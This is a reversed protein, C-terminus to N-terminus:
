KDVFEKIENRWSCWFHNRGGWFIMGEMMMPWRNVVFGEEADAAFCFLYSLLIAMQFDHTCFLDVTNEKNGSAFVYDLMIGASVAISNFGPLDGEIMKHVIIDTRYKHERFVEDCILGDQIQPCELERSAVIINREINRGVLIERCTNINRECSSSAVVGINYKLHKGFCRAMEVGEDTLPVERGYGDGISERISHRFVIKCNANSPVQAAGEEMHEYISRLTM